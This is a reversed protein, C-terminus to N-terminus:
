EGASRPTKPIGSLMIRSAQPTSSASSRTASRAWAREGAPRRSQGPLSPLRQRDRRNQRFNRAYRHRYRYRNLLGQRPRTAAPSQVSPPSPMIERVLEMRGVMRVIAARAATRCVPLRWTAASPPSSWSLHVGCRALVARASKSGASPPGNAAVSVPGSSTANLPGGALTARGSSTGTALGGGRITRVTDAGRALRGAGARGASPPKM